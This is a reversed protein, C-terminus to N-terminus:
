TPPFPWQRWAPVDSLEIRDLWKVWWFGRRGPAILRAPYGHGSALEAGGVRTAVWLRRAEEVAFRRGYGTLSSVALSAGERDRLLRDLRVGTWRQRSYWGGTCDLTADIEEALADLEAWSWARDGVQLRWGGVEVEPVRDNLWQTVPFADPDFSGREHSGTFRRRAGLLDLAKITGETAIVIAGGGAVIAGARLFNRRTLDSPHLKQPRAVLHWIALPVGVLAAGVHLQMATLLGLDSLGWSHMIGFALSILVVAMLLISTSTGARRRRLGRRAVVSKWPALLVIAFGAIAHTLTAWRNWGTGLAYAAVGTAFAATMAALLGLNTRRGAMAGSYHYDGRM